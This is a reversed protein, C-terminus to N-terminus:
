SPGTSTEGILKKPRNLRSRLFSLAFVVVGILCLLSAFSNPIGEVVILGERAFSDLEIQLRPPPIALKSADSDFQLTVQYAHKKRAPFGVIMVHSGGDATSISGTNASSGSGGVKGDRKLQWSFKLLPATDGCNLDPHLDSKIGGLPCIAETASVKGDFRVQMSYIPGDYDVTFDKTVAGARMPMPINGSDHSHVKAMYCRGFVSGSRVVIGGSWNKSFSHTENQYFCIVLRSIDSARAYRVRTGFQYRNHSSRARLPKQPVDCRPPGSRFTTLQSNSFDQCVGPDRYGPTSARDSNRFV